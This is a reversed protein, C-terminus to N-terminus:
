TSKLVRLIYINQSEEQTYPQIFLSIYIYIRSFLATRSDAKPRRLARRPDAKPRCLAKTIELKNWTRKLGFNAGLGFRIFILHFVYFNFLNAIPWSQNTLGTPWIITTTIWFENWTTRLGINAELGFRILIPHFVCFNFLNVIPRSQYTLQTPWFIATAM